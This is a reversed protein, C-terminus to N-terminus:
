KSGKLLTSRILGRLKRETMALNRKDADKVGKQYEGEQDVPNELNDGGAWVDEIPEAISEKEDDENLHAKYPNYSNIDGFGQGLFGYRSGDFRFSELIINRMQKKSIKM